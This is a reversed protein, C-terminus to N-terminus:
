ATTTPDRGDETEEKLVEVYRDILKGMAISFLISMPLADQDHGRLRDYAKVILKDRALKDM